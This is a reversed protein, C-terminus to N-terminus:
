KIKLKEIKEHYKLYEPLAASGYWKYLEAEFIKEKIAPDTMLLENAEEFTAASLILIGRYSKENKGLPGAVVLKGLKALRGINNMHGAFLSDRIAKEETTNSGTKLIVLIYSKMGYDDAGLQRAMSPDYNPNVEQGKAAFVAFLFFPLLLLPRM